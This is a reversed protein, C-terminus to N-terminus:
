NTGHACARIVAYRGRDDYCDLEITSLVHNLTEGEENEESFYEVTQSGVWTGNTLCSSPMIADEGANPMLGASTTDFTVGVM